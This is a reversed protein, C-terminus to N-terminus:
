YQNLQNLKPEAKLQVWVSGVSGFSFWFQVLVTPIGPMKRSNQPLNLPTNLLGGGSGQTRSTSPPCFGNQFMKTTCTKWVHKSQDGLTNVDDNGAVPQPRKLETYNHAACQSVNRPM